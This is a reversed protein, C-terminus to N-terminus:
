RCTILFLDPRAYEYDNREQEHEMSIASSLKLFHNNITLVKDFCACHREQSHVLGLLYSNFSCSFVKMSLYIIM